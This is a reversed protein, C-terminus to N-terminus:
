KEVPPLVISFAPFLIKTRVNMTMANTDADTADAAGATDEVTLPYAPLQIRSKSTVFVRPTAFRSMYKHPTARGAPEILAVGADHPTKAPLPYVTEEKPPDSIM